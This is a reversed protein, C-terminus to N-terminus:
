YYCFYDYCCKSHPFCHGKAAYNGTPTATARLGVAALDLRSTLYPM